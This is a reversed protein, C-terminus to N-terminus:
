SSAGTVGALEKVKAVAGSDKSFLYNHEIYVSMFNYYGVRVELGSWVGYVKRFSDNVLHVHHKLGATVKIHVHLDPLRVALDPWSVRARGHNPVSRNDREPFEKRDSGPILDQGNLGPIPYANIVFVDFDM